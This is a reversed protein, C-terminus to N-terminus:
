YCHRTWPPALSARGREAEKMKMCNETFITIIPQRGEDPCYQIRWHAICALKRGCTKLDYWSLPQGWCGCPNTYNVLLSFIQPLDQCLYSHIALEAWLQGCTSNGKWCQWNGPRLSRSFSVNIQHQLFSLFIIAWLDMGSISLKTAVVIPPKWKKEVHLCRSFWCCKEGPKKVVKEVHLFPM